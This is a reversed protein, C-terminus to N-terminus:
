PQRQVVQHNRAIVQDEVGLNKVWVVRPWIHAKGLQALSCLAIVPNALGPCGAGQRKQSHTGFRSGLRQQPQQNPISPQGFGLHIRDDRITMASADPPYIEHEPGKADDHLIVAILMAGVLRLVAFINPSPLTEHPLAPVHQSKVVICERMAGIQSLELDRLRQRSTSARRRRPNRLLM